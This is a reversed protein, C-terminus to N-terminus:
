DNIFACLAGVCAMLLGTVIIPVVIAINHTFFILVVFGSLMIFVGMGFWYRAIPQNQRDSIIEELRDNFQNFTRLQAKHAFMIIKFLQCILWVIVLGLYGM